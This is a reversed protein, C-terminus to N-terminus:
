CSDSFLTGKSGLAQQGQHAPRAPDVSSPTLLLACVPHEQPTKQPPHHLVALIKGEHALPQSVDRSGLLAHLCSGAKGKASCRQPVPATAEGGGPCQTMEM